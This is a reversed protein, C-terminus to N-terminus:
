EHGLENSIEASCAAVRDIHKCHRGHEGAPCNCEWLFGFGDETRGVFRVTYRRLGDSSSVAYTNDDIAEIGHDACIQRELETVM